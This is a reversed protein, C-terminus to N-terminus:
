SLRVRVVVEDSGDERTVDLLEHGRMRCWAPLDYATAPDTSLVRLVTGAPLDRAARATDVVPVPCRSGRSDVLVEDRADGAAVGDGATV